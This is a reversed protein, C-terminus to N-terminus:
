FLNLNFLSEEDDDDDGHKEGCHPHECSFAEFNIPWPTGGWVAFISHDETECGTNPHILIDIPFSGATARHQTAFAMVEQLKSPPFFYALQATNFPGGAEMAVDFACMHLEDDDEQGAMPDGASGCDDTVQFHSSLREAFALASKVSQKNYPMFLAHVHYSVIEPFEM